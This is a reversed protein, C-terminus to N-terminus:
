RKIRASVFGPIPIEHVGAHDPCLDISAAPGRKATPMMVHRWGEHAVEQRAHTMNRAVLTRRNPCLPVDCRIEVTALITCSM